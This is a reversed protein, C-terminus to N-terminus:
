LYARGDALQIQGAHYDEAALMLPAWKLYQGRTRRDAYFRKFDGPKYASVNLLNAASVAISCQVPEADYRYSKSDRQWRFVAQKASPKWDAMTGLFGPGPNGYPKWWGGVDSTEDRWNRKRRQNERDQERAM